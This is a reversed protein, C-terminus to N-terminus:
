AQGFQVLNDALEPLEGSFIELSYGVGGAAGDTNWSLSGDELFTKNRAMVPTRSPGYFFALEAMVPTSRAM